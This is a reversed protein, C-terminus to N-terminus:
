PMFFFYYALNSDTIWIFIEDCLVIYIIFYHVTGASISLSIVSVKNLSSLTILSKDEIKAGGFGMM